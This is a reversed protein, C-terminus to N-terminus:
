RFEISGLNDMCASDPARLPDDLFALGMQLACSDSRMVGHSMNTFEYYYHNSLTGAALEAWGPPTIPDYRGSFILTPIDSVVAENEMPDAPPIDWLECVDLAYQEGFHESLVVPLSASDSSRQINIEFPIEEGCTTSWFLATSLPSGISSGVPESLESYSEEYAANILHPIDPISSMSYLGGFIVDIFLDGDMYVAYPQDRYPGSANTVIPANELRDIVAYFKAEIDGYNSSCFDDTACANFVEQLSRNANLALDIDLNVQTPEVSDIIVSRIGEPHDRMVTLALRTGYSAGYLNVRAYGLALRLDKVDAASQASNYAALNIGQKRWSELCAALKPLAGANYEDLSLNLEHADWLYEDYPRCPLYPVSYRTGRQDFLVYDRQKLIETGGKMLIPLANNLASSGPGGILHIVPDPAPNPNTSKFIAVHLQIKRGDPQNHDEPVTLYGCEPQFDEPIEFACNTSRFAPLLASTTATCTLSPEATSTSLAPTLAAPTDLGCGAALMLFMIPIALGLYHKIM